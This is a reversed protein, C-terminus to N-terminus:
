VGRFARLRQKGDLRSPQMCWGLQDKPGAHLSAVAKGPSLQGALVEGEGNMNKLLLTGQEKYVCTRPVPIAGASDSIDGREWLRAHAVLVHQPGARCTLGLHVDPIGPFRAVHSRIQFSNGGPATRHSQRRMGIFSNHQGVILTTGPV